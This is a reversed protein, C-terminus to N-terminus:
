SSSPIAGHLTSEISDVAEQLAAVYGHVQSRRFRSAPIAVSVAVIPSGAADKVCMALGNVGQAAEELNLAYGNRRVLTLHRKLGQVSTIRSSRWQPLGERHLEELEALSLWALLSKGGASCYAPVDDWLGTRVNLVQKSEIGDLYRVRAGDLVWAQVTEDLQENLSQLVPRVVLRLRSLPTADGRRGGLEPGARYRRDRTQEAFGDYCLAALLRHATSSVVGLLAAAEKVSLIDGRRLAVVLQLARHVSDLPSESTNRM